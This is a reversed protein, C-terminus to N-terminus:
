SDRGAYSLAVPFVPGSGHSRLLWGAVTMTWRSDVLDDILLVGGSPLEKVAIELAGDLNRAQQASNAMRKQEPRDDTKRLAMTFELDLTSALREAFDRVLMTHRLSPICTIWSATPQPNWNRIMEACAQVLEDSFRGANYKGERVAAGWGADGWLCLAKGTEIREQEPIVGKVAYRPMGGSPWRSRPEIIFEAGKLFAVAERVLVPHPDPSLRPLENSPQDGGTGDLARILFNMHGTQLGVYEQMQSQEQRRLHTLRQARNWFEESLRAATLQWKAGQKAIPSPSELRLLDLTKQIRGQTLNVEGLLEPVSLGTPSKELTEIVTAAEERTPFASQIFYDTIELEEDGSLLIGYASDIARGARGVQQYYAVVSGPAQYHIVFGLDPKDFGMGLATTAVLAKIRNQILAEELGERGAGTESSYAEVELGRSKLWEAVQNADRVTLAYIVGSGPLHPLHEALWALREAQTRLRITQLTLSSRALDGRLVALNPGLVEQLDDMVRNNATATTALLRMNRPLARATREILRYHPRFDHGWDSICHAEDVVLLSVRSGIRSLVNNQFRENALREPSILLIDVEGRELRREVLEWDDQNDSHITAARVGMRGAAAIQNRMLALLPSILLAPGAGAERLLKTAIFYVFSKGWGTKKVVLLRGRGEVIYRVAEEQGERFTAESNSCGCRLLELARGSNYIM